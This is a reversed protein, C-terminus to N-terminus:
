FVTGQQRLSQPLIFSNPAVAALACEVVDQTLPTDTLPSRLTVRCKELIHRLRKLEVEPGEDTHRALCTAFHGALGTMQGFIEGCFYCFDTDCTTEPRVLNKCTMHNCGRSKTISVGCSPCRVIKAESLLDAVGMVGSVRSTLATSSCAVGFHAPGRCQMCSVAHCVACNIVTDEGAGPAPTVCECAPCVCAEAELRQARARNANYVIFVALPLHRWLAEQMATPTAFGCDAVHCRFPDRGGVFGADKYQEAVFSRVKSLTCELCSPHHPCCTGATVVAATVPALCVVCTAECADGDEAAGHVAEVRTRKRSRRPAPTPTPAPSDTAAPETDSDSEEAAHVFPVADAVVGMAPDPITSASVAAGGKVALQKDVELLLMFTAARGLWAQSRSARLSAGVPVHIDEVLMQGMYHLHALKTFAKGTATAGIPCPVCTGEPVSIQTVHRWRRFGTVADLVTVTDSAGDLASRSMKRRAASRLLSWTHLKETTDPSPAQDAPFETKLPCAASVTAWDKFFELLPLLTVTGAGVDVVKGWIKFVDVTSSPPAFAELFEQVANRSGVPTALCSTLFEAHHAPSYLGVGSHAVMDSLTEMAGHLLTACTADTLEQDPKLGALAGFLDQYAVGGSGATAVMYAARVLKDAAAKRARGRAFAKASAVLSKSSGGWVGAALARCAVSVVNQGPMFLSGPVGTPQALHLALMRRTEQVTVDFLHALAQLADGSELVCYPTCPDAPLHTLPTTAAPTAASPSAAGEGLDRLLTRTLFATVHSRVRAAARQGAAEPATYRGRLEWLMLSLYTGAVTPHVFWQRNHGQVEADFVTLIDGCSVRSMVRAVDDRYLSMVMATTTAELLAAVHALTPEVMSTWTATVHQHHHTGYGMLMAADPGGRALTRAFDDSHASDVMFTADLESARFPVDVSTEEDSTFTMLRVVEMFPLESDVLVPHLLRMAFDEFEALATIRGPIKVAAIRWNLVAHMRDLVLCQLSKLQARMYPGLVAWCAVPDQFAERAPVTYAAATAQAM